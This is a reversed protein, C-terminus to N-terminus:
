AGASPQLIRPRDGASIEQAKRTWHVQFLLTFFNSAAVAVFIGRVGLLPTAILGLFLYSFFGIVLSLFLERPRGTANFFINLNWFFPRIIAIPIAWMWVSEISERWTNGLIPGALFWLFLQVIALGTSVGVLLVFCFKRLTRWLVEPSDQERSYVAGAVADILNVSLSLPIRLLQATRDYIGIEINTTFVRLLFVDLNSVATEIWTRPALLKAFGFYYQMIKSTPGNRWVRQFQWALLLTGRLATEALRAAVLAIGIPSKWAAIFTALLWTGVAIIEVIALGGFAFTKQAVIMPTFTISEFIIQFLLLPWLAKLDNLSPIMLVAGVTLLAGVAGGSSTLLLHVRAYGPQVGDSSLLASSQGFERMMSALGCIMTASALIGFQDARIRSTSVLIGLFRMGQCVLSSGSYFLIARSKTGTRFRNALRLFIDAIM